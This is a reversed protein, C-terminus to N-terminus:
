ADENAELIQEALMDRMIPLLKARYFDDLQGLLCLSEGTADSMGYCSIEHEVGRNYGYASTSLEDSKLSLRVCNGNEPWFDQAEFKLEGAQPHISISLM